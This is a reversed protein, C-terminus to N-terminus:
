PKVGIVSNSNFKDELYWRRMESFVASYSSENRGVMHPNNSNSESINTVINIFKKGHSDFFAYPDSSWIFDGDTDLELLARFGALVPFAFGKEIPYKGKANIFHYQSAQQRGRKRFNAESTKGFKGKKEDDDAQNYLDQWKFRIHDYLKCIDPVIKKLKKYGFTDKEDLFWDLCKGANKYAEIPQQNQFKIPNVCSLWQIIETVHIPQEDNESLRVKQSFDGLSDMLWNFSGKKNELSFKKVQISYNRAEAIDTLHEEIGTLIELRVFQDNPEIRELINEPDTLAKMVNTISSYTHGGDIIGYRDDDAPIELNLEQKQNDYICDKASITIGRNLLHFRGDWTSLSATIKKHVPNNMKPIRPDPGMPLELPLDSINALVFITKSNDQNPNSLSRINERPVKVIYM